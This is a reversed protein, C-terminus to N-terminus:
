YKTLAPLKLNHSHHPECRFILLTYNLFIILTYGEQEEDPM